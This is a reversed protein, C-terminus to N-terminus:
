AADIARESESRPVQRTNRDTHAMDWAVVLGQRASRLCARGNVHIWELGPWRRTTPPAVKFLKQNIYEAYQTRTPQRPLAAV